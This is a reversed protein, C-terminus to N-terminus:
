PRPPAPRDPQSRPPLQPPRASQPSPTEPAASPATPPDLDVSALVRYRLEAAARRAPLPAGAIALRALEDAVNLGTAAALDLTAALATWSDDTLIRADISGILNRWRDEPRQQEPSTDQDTRTQDCSERHDHDALRRRADQDIAARDARRTAESPHAAAAPAAAVLRYQLDRAPHTPSLPQQAALRPFHEAVNYGAAHARDIAHALSPWDPAALLAPSIRAVTDAWRETPATPPTPRRPQRTDHLPGADRVPLRSPAADPIASIHHRAQGRPDDTWAHAAAIVALQLPGPPTHLRTVAHVLHDIWHQPPLAAIVAALHHISSDTGDGIPPAGDILSRALPQSATLLQRVAAPGHHQLIHAPDSGTPLPAHGPNAGRAVLHWYARQAAKWGAQDADTAVLVGPRNPGIYPMLQNAQQDTLATGLPAAGIHTGDAALTIAIADIPGEVLTPTAGAALGARGEHLGFLQSGKTFLDTDPTNLYKPGAKGSAPDVADHAPNRRAIFGHIHGDPGHIPFILRDRFQDILRGTASIRGLGAALIEQDTAGHRRLHNVLHHAGPPAYGPTFRDDDLLDTGLRERLYHAAWSHPYNRRYYNAAHQNLAILREKPVPADRWKLQDDVAAFLDADTPELPGRLLAATHIAHELDLTLAAPGGIPESGGPDADLLEAPATHGELTALESPPLSAANELTYPQDLLHLDDPPALEAQAPDPPTTEYDLPTPDTLMAIRWVLAPTLDADAVEDGGALTLEVAVRVLRDPTWEDRPATDVAAVLAPWAPDATVRHARSDGLLEVLIPTWAPRLTAAGSGATAATAAPTLHRSLRWWLAAAPQEDPLTHQDAVATLMGRVHIGTRDIAALRDALDPWYEDDTIRPDIRTVVPAWAAAAHQPDGLVTKARRNLDGQYRAAAAALQPGGTPRRDTDTIGIAARWVALDARLSEHTPDLLRTAWAPATTPTWRTTHQRLQDALTAVRVASGTLYQGWEPHAALAAPVVPLWPLPGAPTHSRHPDLRWDCVAAPDLATDLERADPGAVTRLLEIPSTGDVALLALHARLTPYAPAQTLGPRMQDAAKDLATLTEAGIVQEAAFGLADHYRAAAEHLLVAPNALEAATSTASQQAQDRNLIATLIDTATPPFLAQPKIINHPDGDSATVLYVHNAARGRTMAVYFLQRSEQGSALTHCTDATIGQAGHVTAAYGLETNEAVYQGPLTVTRGTDLHVAVVAGSRHVTRVTWRDGNKVWDTSSIPLHRDNQRTLIVDGASARNGDALLVDRGAPVAQTALRDARARANLISVLERTPALMVSNLGRDRDASWARYVQDTVTTQDGVHVRGHDLYFGLGAADGQRLALTAAGEARDTFRQLESLTVVGVREAIDRLVGGAAISALQQDDGVLRVSGGHSLVYDVAAALDATGAMGAEDIIVLTHPGIGRVWDPMMGTALSYTLKALTDSRTQIAQRLEAAARASPALGVVDGGSDIWARALVRMATTKGSGAPAIAVQVRAASTALERVMQAQAPNLELRNAASEALAVGVATDTIARGDRRQAAALLSNEAQVIVTSTYLRSGAVLYVSSGDSRRLPEPDALDANGLEISCAPSLARTVVRDVAGDLQELALGAARLQREAEARVHWSQWTARSAQVVSVTRATMEAVFRDTIQPPPPRADRGGVAAAVMRQLAARGGLVQLAQHRWAARQEAFSRPEHKGPRTELTAQQALAIAEIETPPRMHQVQFAAALEARRADIAARRSSWFANLAPDVGVIERIPRRTTDRGPREAFVAGIRRRIHAELRTNYRESLSVKAKYLVRGDLALWRGDRTQTKNSVTVHTHLDPDGTRSDRHTFAAAVIGNTEVQRVGARGTRTFAVQTELWALTDAVADHHAAEIQEAIQRPAIAWLASVSKVPSFTLDYGAVATTAQRSVRAIYGSLERADAPARGFTDSFMETALETRIRAKVQAPLPWDRPLGDRSNHAEYRAALRLRWTNPQDYIPFARGLAGAKLAAAKTGGAEIVAAEIADANPHRGEGFLAKMQAATVQEGPGIGLAALGSGLWRGPSEGKQAYYDGLSAHGKETSDLAAVQRTLYTYGDGATLKHLGMM